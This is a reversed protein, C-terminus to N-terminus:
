VSGGHEQDEQIRSKVWDYQRTLGDMLEVQPEWGLIKRAKSYDACRGRDGEPKSTDYHIEITKGSIDVITEAVERIPTCVDPGIQIVGRGLGKSITAVLADVIDDVHVFARGQSGSGWVVFLEDPYLIAKRILSPIVQGKNDSYDCPAGYVNHFVLVSVPIKTEKEM